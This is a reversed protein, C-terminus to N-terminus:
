NPLAFAIAKYVRYRGPTKIREATKLAEGVQGEKTQGIAVITLENLRNHADIMADAFLLAEAFQGARTRWRVIQRLMSDPDTM